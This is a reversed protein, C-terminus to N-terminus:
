LEIISNLRDVFDNIWKQSNKNKEIHEQMKVESSVMDKLEVIKKNLLSDLNEIQLLYYSKLEEAENLIKEKEEGCYRDINSVVNALVGSNYKMINFEDEFRFFKFLKFGKPLVYKDFEKKINNIENDFIDDIDKFSHNFSDINM